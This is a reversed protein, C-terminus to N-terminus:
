VARAVPEALQSEVLAVALDVADALKREDILDLSEEPLHYEEYPFHLISLAPIGAQAFPLHDTGAEQGLETVVDYREWQGLRRAEREARELLAAPSCLLELKDGHGICDLNVMGVIQPLEGRERAEAVYRRAGVLGIEEAGFAVFELTRPHERGVLREAVRRLGEVGTANDIAGNGRWVSDFHAGVVVREESAGPVTAIVNRDRRGPVFEGRVVLRAHQGDRLREADARSLYATPPQAIHGAASSSGVFPIPGKGFISRVLRGEGVAWVGDSLLRVEGECEGPHSYLCPGAQWREADIWLEPEEADYGLLPFEQFRPELGLGRFSEAIAEAARAAGETGCQRVGIEIALTELLSVARDYARVSGNPDRTTFTPM